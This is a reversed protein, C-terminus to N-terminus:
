PPLGTRVSAEERGRNKRQEDREADVRYGDNERRIRTESKQKKKEM